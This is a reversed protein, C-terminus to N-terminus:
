VARVSTVATRKYICTAKYDKVMVNQQIVLHLTHSPVARESIYGSVAPEAIPM